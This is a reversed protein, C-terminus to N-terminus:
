DIEKQNILLSYIKEVLADIKDEEDPYKYIKHVNNYEIIASYIKEKAQQQVSLLYKLEVLNIEHIRRYLLVVLEKDNGLNDYLVKKLNKDKINDPYDVSGNIKECLEKYAKLLEKYDLVEQKRKKILELLVTSLKEFYIPNTPRKEVIEHKIRAEIIESNTQKKKVSDSSINKEGEIIIDMLNMDDLIEIRESDNAKVYNDFIFRMDADYKKLDIYDSSARYVVKKKDEYNKLINEYQNLIKDDINLRDAYPKFNHYDRILRSVYGYFKRRNGERLKIQFDDEDIDDDKQEGCFFKIFSQEDSKDDIDELLSDLKDMNEKFDAFELEGPKKLFGEVDSDDYQFNVVSTYSKIADKYENFLEKYDVVFGCTKTEDDPRNVRCIAQFLGQDQLHKDIYLYTCKPADFGTLLKNVVILLKMNAPEEVFKTKVEEEFKESSQYGAIMKKYTENKILEENIENESSKSKSIISNNPEYSTVIAVENFGFKKFIEYYKCAEYVSSAVLMANGRGEKLRSNMEFDLIIDLAIKELREEASYLKSIKGWEKKLREKGIESLSKTREKFWIDIMDKNEIKQEVNRPDYALDLVVKDQVGEKYTYVHIYSGFVSISSKDKEGSKLKDKKLLPTGTFGIFIGNPIIDKMSQHLIGSQTRHCEDVFIVFDGYLKFGAPKADNLEKVYNELAKENDEDTIEKGPTGFKHILSCIVRKSIGDDGKVRENALYKFLEQCSKARVITNNSNKFAKEIQKDLEDRDTIILVRKDTNEKIWKTLWVMTLSKGSGQTHWIIGGQSKLIRNEARKMAYYQNYRCVKKIGKDFIIYNDIIDLLRPIYYINYLSTLLRNGIINYDSNVAEIKDEIAITDEDKEELFYKYNDKKWECYYVSPTKITGYRLGESPNAAVLIQMTSFFDKIYNEDQNGINQRIGEEVSVSSRKLEIISLAIGNIYIVIDPRKNNNKVVTVEEAIEYINKTIENKEFSIYHVTVPKRNEDLFEKGYRLVEYVEKNVDYLDRNKSNALKFIYVIADDVIKVSYGMREELYKKLSDLRINENEEKELNGIYDYKLEKKFFEVVENQVKREYIQLNENDSSM